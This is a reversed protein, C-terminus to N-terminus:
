ENPLGEKSMESLNNAILDLTNYFVSRDTDSVGKGAREVALAARRRVFEAVTKGQETLCIKARYLNRGSGTKIVLGKEEMISLTRSVDAKDKGCMDGLRSATIGDEYRALAVLYM